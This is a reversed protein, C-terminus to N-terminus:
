NIYWKGYGNSVNELYHGKGKKLEPDVNTKQYTECITLVFYLNSVQGKGSGGLADALDAAAKFISLFNGFKDM